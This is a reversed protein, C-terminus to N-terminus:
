QSNAFSRRYNKYIYKVIIFLNLTAFALFVISALIVPIGIQMIGNMDGGGVFNHLISLYVPDLILFVFTSYYAIARAFKNELKLISKRKWVLAYGVILTAVTGIISFIFIQLDSMVSTEAVIQVGLGFGVIRISQFTGMLLVTCLHAGEHIVYYLVLCFYNPEGM